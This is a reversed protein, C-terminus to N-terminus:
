ALRRFCDASDLAQPVHHGADEGVQLALAADLHAGTRDPPCIVDAVRAMEARWEAVLLRYVPLYRPM